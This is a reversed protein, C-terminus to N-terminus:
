KLKRGREGRGGIRKRDEQKLCPRGIYGLSAKVRLGGAEAKQTGPNYAHAMVVLNITVKRKGGAGNKGV